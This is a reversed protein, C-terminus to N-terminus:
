PSATDAFHEALVGPEREPQQHAGRREHEDDGAGVDRVEREHAAHTALVLEDHARREAGADRPQALQQEDLIQQERQHAARESEHM